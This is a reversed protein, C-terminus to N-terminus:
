LQEALVSVDDTFKFYWTHDRKEVSELNVDIIPLDTPRPEM